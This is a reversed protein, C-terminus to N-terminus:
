DSKLLNSAPCRTNSIKSSLIAIKDRDNVINRRLCETECSDLLTVIDVRDSKNGTFKLDDKVHYIDLKLDNAM